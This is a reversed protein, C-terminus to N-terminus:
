RPGARWCLSTGRAFSGPFVSRRGPRARSLGAGTRTLSRRCGIEIDGDDFDLDSDHDFGFVSDHDFDVDFGHSSNSVSFATFGTNRTDAIAPAALAIVMVAMM